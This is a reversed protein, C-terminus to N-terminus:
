DCWSSYESRYEWDINSQTCYEEIARIIDDNKSTEKNRKISWHGNINIENGDFSIHYIGRDIERNAKNVLTKLQEDTLRIMM